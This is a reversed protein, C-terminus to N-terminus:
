YGMKAVDWGFARLMLNADLWRSAARLAVEREDAHPHRRRVDAVALQQVTQTLQTVIELKAAPTMRRFGEILLADIAPHTDDPLNATMRSAYCLALLKRESSSRRIGAHRSIPKLKGAVMRHTWLTAEM